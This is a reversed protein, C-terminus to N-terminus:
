PSDGNVTGGESVIIRTVEPSAQWPDPVTAGRNRRSALYPERILELDVIAIEMTPGVAICGRMQTLRATFQKTHECWEVEIPYVSM